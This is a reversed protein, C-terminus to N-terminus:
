KEMQQIGSLGLAILFSIYPALYKRVSYYVQLEKRVLLCRTIDVTCTVVLCAIYYLTVILRTRSICNGHFLLLYYMNTQTHTRARAYKYDQKDLMSRTHAM